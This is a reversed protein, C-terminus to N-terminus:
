CGCEAADGAGLSTVHFGRGFWSSLFDIRMGGSQSIIDHDASTMVFTVGEKEVKQDEDQLEDLAM